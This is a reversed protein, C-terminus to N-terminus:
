PPYCYIGRYWINYRCLSSLLLIGAVISCWGVVRAALLRLPCQWCHWIYSWFINPVNCIHNWLCADSVFGMWMCCVEAVACQAFTDWETSENFVSLMFLMCLVAIRRCLQEPMRESNICITLTM